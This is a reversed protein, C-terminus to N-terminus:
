ICISCRGSILYSFSGCNDFVFPVAALLSTAITVARRIYPVTTLLSTAFPVVMILVFPVAALLSNASPVAM